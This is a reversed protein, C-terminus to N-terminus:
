EWLAAVLLVWSIFQAGELARNQSILCEPIGKAHLSCNSM